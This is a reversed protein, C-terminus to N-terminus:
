ILKGQQDQKSETNQGKPEGNEKTGLVDKRSLGSYDSILGIVVKAELSRLDRPCPVATSHCADELAVAARFLESSSQARSFFEVLGEIPLTELSKSFGTRIQAASSGSVDLFENVMNEAFDLYTQTANSDSHGFLMGQRFFERRASTDSLSHRMGLYDAGIAILACCFYASRTIPGAEPERETALRLLRAGEDLWINFARFGIGRTLESKVTEIRARLNLKDITITKWVENLQETTLRHEADSYRKIIADFVSSSIVRIDLRDSFRHATDKVGRSAIIAEDAGLAFQLGKVWVAREFAKGRRRNKIDVIAVHRSHATPRTYVWLDIDTVTEQGERVPVGRLVFSGLSRFYRGLCEEALAGKVESARGSTTM